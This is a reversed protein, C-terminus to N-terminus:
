ISSGEGIQTTYADQAGRDIMQILLLPVGNGLFEGGGEILVNDPIGIIGRHGLSVIAKALLGEVGEHVVGEGLVGGGKAPFFRSPLGIDTQILAKGIVNSGQVLLTIGTLVM